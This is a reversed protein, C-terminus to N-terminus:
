QWERFCLSSPRLCHSNPNRGHSGLSLRV